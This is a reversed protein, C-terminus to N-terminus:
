DLNKDADGITLKREADVGCSKLNTRQHSALVGSKVDIVLATDLVIRNQHSKEFSSRVIEVARHRSRTNVASKSLWPSRYNRPRNLM